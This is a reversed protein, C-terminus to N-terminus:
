RWGSTRSTTLSSFEPCKGSEMATPDADRTDGRTLWNVKYSEVTLHASCTGDGEGSGPGRNVRLFQLWQQHHEGV